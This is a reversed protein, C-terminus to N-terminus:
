RRKRPMKAILYGLVFGALLILLILLIQSLAFRWFLFHVVVVHTNQLMLLVLLIFLAVIALTKPKM